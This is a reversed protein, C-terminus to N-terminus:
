RGRLRASMGAVGARPSPRGMSSGYPNRPPAPRPALPATPKEATRVGWTTEHGGHPDWLALALSDARDPSRKLRKRMDDKHEVVMKGAHKALRASSFSVTFLEEHLQIDDPIEGGARLWDRVTFWLEDRIYLYENSRRPPPDNSRIEHIRDKIANPEKRQLERLERITNEGIGIADVKISAVERRPHDRYKDALTRIQRAIEDPEMKAGVWIELVVLGRVITIATMDPGPGAVDVGILLGGQDRGWLDERNNGHAAVYLNRRVKWRRASEEVLGRAILTEDSEIPFLGLVKRRYTANNVDGNAKALEDAIFQRDCLDNNPPLLGAEVYGVIEFADITFTNYLNKQSHFADYYPGISRNANGTSLLRANGSALSTDVADMDDQDIGSAEDVLILVRGSVGQLSIPSQAAYGKIEREDARIGDEASERPIDTIPCSHPCRGRPYDSPELNPNAKRCDGCVGSRRILDRVAYYLGQEVTKMIPAFLVVRGGPLTFWWLAIIGDLLTKGAKHCSVVATRRHPGHLVAHAIAVQGPHLRVGFIDWAFGAIDHEYYRSPWRLQTSALLAEDVEMRFADLITRPGTLAATRGYVSM